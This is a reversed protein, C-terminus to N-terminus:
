SAAQSLRFSERCKPCKRYKDWRDEAASPDKVISPPPPVPTQCTEIPCYTYSPDSTGMCGVLTILV